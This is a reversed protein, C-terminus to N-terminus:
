AAPAPAPQTHAQHVINTVQVATAIAHAGAAEVLEPSIDVGVAQAATAAEKAITLVHALKEAGSAGKIAEAAAIALAVPRAIPALPSAGLAAVGVTELIHLWKPVSM